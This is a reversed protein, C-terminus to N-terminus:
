HGAVRAYARLDHGEEGFLDYGPEEGVGRRDKRDFQEQVVETGAEEEEEPSGGEAHDRHQDEREVPKQDTCHRFEHPLLLSHEVNRRREQRVTDELDGGEEDCPAETEEEPPLDDGLPLAAAIGNGSGQREGAVKEPYDDREER